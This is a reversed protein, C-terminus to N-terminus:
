GRAARTRGAKEAVSPTLVDTAAATSYSITWAAEGGLRSVVEGAVDAVSATSYSITWANESGLRAFDSLHSHLDGIQFAKESAQADRTMEATVRSVIERIQREDAM